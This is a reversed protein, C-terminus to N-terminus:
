QRRLRLPIARGSTSDVVELFYRALGLDRHRRHIIFLTKQKAARRVM